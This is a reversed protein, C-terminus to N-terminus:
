SLQSHFGMCQYPMLSIVPQSGLDAGSMGVDGEGGGTGVCGWWCSDLGGRGWVIYSLHVCVWWGAFGFSSLYASFECVAPLVSISTKRRLVNVLVLWPSCFPLAYWVCLHVLCFFIHRCQTCRKECASSTCATIASVDSSAFCRPSNDHLSSAFM